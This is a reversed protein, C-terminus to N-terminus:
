ARGRARRLAWLNEEIQRSIESHDPKLRYKRAGLPGIIELAYDRHNKLTQMVVSVGTSTIHVDQSEAIAQAIEKTSRPQTNKRLEAIVLKQTSIKM